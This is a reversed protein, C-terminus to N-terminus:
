GRSVDRNDFYLNNITIYLCEISRVKTNHFLMINRICFVMIRFKHDPKPFFFIM